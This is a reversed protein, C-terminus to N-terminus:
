AKRPRKAAHTNRPTRDPSESIERRPSAQNNGPTETQQIPTRPTGAPPLTGGLQTEPVITQGTSAPTPERQNNQQSGTNNANTQNQANPPEPNRAGPNTQPYPCNSGHHGFRRCNYCRRNRNANPDLRRPCDEKVHPLRADARCDSCHNFRGVYILQYDLSRLKIFGPFHDRIVSDPFSDIPCDNFQVSALVTGTSM